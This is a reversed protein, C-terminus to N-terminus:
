FEVIRTAIELPKKKLEEYIHVNLTHYNHDPKPLYVTDSHTYLKRGRWVNMCLMYQM